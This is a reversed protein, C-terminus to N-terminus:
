EDDTSFCMASVVVSVCTNFQTFSLLRSVSTESSPQNVRCHLEVGAGLQGTVNVSNHLEAFYPMASSQLGESELTTGTGATLGRGRSHAGGGAGACSLLSYTRSIDHIDPEKLVMSLEYSYLTLWFSHLQTLEAAHPNM